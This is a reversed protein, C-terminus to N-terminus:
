KERTVYAFESKHSIQSADDSVVSAGSGGGQNDRKRFRESLYSYVSKEDETNPDPIKPGYISDDWIISNFGMKPGKSYVRDFMDKSFQRQPESNMTPFYRYCQFDKLKSLKSISRPAPGSIANGNLLLVVLKNLNGIDNPLVGRFDNNSLNLYRLATLTCLEDPIVGRLKNNHMYCLDLSRLNSISPHLHNELCNNNLVLRKLKTCFNFANAGSSFSNNALNVDTLSLLSSFSEHIDGVLNNNQLKLEELNKLCSLTPPLEGYFSNCSLNLVTLRKVINFIDPIEGTINNCSLNLVSLKQLDSLSSPDLTGSLMNGTLDLTSLNDCAGIDRPIGRSLVNLGLYLHKCAKLERLSPLVGELGFGELNLASVNTQLMKGAGFKMISVGDYLSVAAELPQVEPVQTTRPRGVWGDLKSWSPGRLTKYLRALAERQDPPVDLTTTDDYEDGTLQKFTEKRGLADMWLLNTANKSSGAKEMEKIVKGFKEIEMCLLYRPPPLTNYKKAERVSEDIEGVNVVNELANVQTLTVIDDLSYSVGQSLQFM